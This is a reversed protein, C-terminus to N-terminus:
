TLAPFCSTRTSSVAFRPRIRTRATLVTQGCYDVTQQYTDVDLIANIDVYYVGYPIEICKCESLPDNYRTNCPLAGDPGSYYCLAFPGGECPLFNEKPDVLIDAYAPSESYPLATMMTNFEFPLGSRIAEMVVNRTFVRSTRAPNNQFGARGIGALGFLLEEPGGRSGTDAGAQGGFGFVIMAVVFVATTMTRM